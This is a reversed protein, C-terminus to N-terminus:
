LSSLLGTRAQTRGLRHSPLPTQLAGMHLMITRGSFCSKPRTATPEAECGTVKVMLLLQPPATMALELLGLSNTMVPLLQASPTVAARPQVTVTWNLGPVAPGREATSVTLMAPAPM